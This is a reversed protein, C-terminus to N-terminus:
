AKRKAPRFTISKFAGIPSTRVIVLKGALFAKRTRPVATATFGTRTYIWDAFHMGGLEKFIANKTM